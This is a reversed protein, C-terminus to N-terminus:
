YNRGFYQNVLHLSGVAVGVTASSILIKRQARHSSALRVRCGSTSCTKDRQCKPVILHRPNCDASINRYSYENITKYQAHIKLFGMTRLAWANYNELDFRPDAVAKM